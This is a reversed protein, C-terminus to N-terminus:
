LNMSFQMGKRGTEQARIERSPPCSVEDGKMSSPFHGSLKLEEELTLESELLHDDADDRFLERQVLSDKFCGNDQDLHRSERDEYLSLGEARAQSHTEETKGYLKTGNCM